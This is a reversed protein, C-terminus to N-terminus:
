IISSSAHTKEKKWEIIHNDTANRFKITVEQLDLRNEVQMNWSEGNTDTAYVGGWQRNKSQAGGLLLLMHKGFLEFDIRCQYAQATIKLALQWLRITYQTCEFPLFSNSISSVSLVAGGPNNILKKNRKNKGLSRTSM